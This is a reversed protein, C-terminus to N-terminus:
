VVSKRDSVLAVWEISSELPFLHEIHHRSFQGEVVAFHALGTLIKYKNILGHIQAIDPELYVEWGVASIVSPLNSSQAPNFYVLKRKAM